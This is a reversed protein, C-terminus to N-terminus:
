HFGQKIALTKKTKGCQKNSAYLSVSYGYIFYFIVAYIIYLFFDPIADTFKLQDLLLYNTFFVVFIVYIITLPIVKTVANAM